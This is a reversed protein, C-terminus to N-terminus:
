LQPIVNYIHLVHIHALRTEAAHLASQWLGSQATSQRVPSGSAVARLVKASKHAFYDTTLASRYMFLYM